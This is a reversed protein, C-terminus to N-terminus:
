DFTKPELFEIVLKPFESEIFSISAWLTPLASDSFQGKVLAAWQMPYYRVVMGLIYSLAYITCIHSLSVGKDYRAVISPVKGSPGRYDSVGPFMSLDNPGRFFLHNGAAYIFRFPTGLFLKESLEENMEIYNDIMVGVQIEIATCFSTVHACNTFNKWRLFQNLLPPLRSILDGLSITAMPTLTQNVFYNSDMGSIRSRIHSKCETATALHLFMGTENLQIKLKAFDPTEKSMENGWSNVSLGHSPALNAERFGRCLFLTLGRSLNLVGYYLLLPKVTAEAFEASRFYSRAHSFPAAIERAHRSSPMRGHRTAYAKKVLEYSEYNALLEWVKRTV